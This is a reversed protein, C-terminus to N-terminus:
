HTFARSLQLGAPGVAVIFVCPLIFLIMPLTLIVPLRAAREEFAVLMEQRLEASLARMADSIPTGYQMTQILTTAFRKFSDVGTRTGLNVLALRSDTMIQLENATQAFEMALDRYSHRLEEAVRVVSPGLSLGAQTCIVMMDLADPLGKEIRVLYNKRRKSIIWDPMLLGLVGLVATVPMIKGNLAGVNTSIFWGALAMLVPSFVKCGLFVNLGQTGRLGASALSQELGAKTGASIVGSQLLFTGDSSTIRTVVGRVAEAQTAIKVAGPDGHIMRVRRTMAEELRVDRLLMVGAALLLLVFLFGGMAMLPHTM